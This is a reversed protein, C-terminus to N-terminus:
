FIPRISSRSTSPNEPNRTCFIPINNTVIGYDVPDVQYWEKNAYNNVIRDRGVVVFEIRIKIGGEVM